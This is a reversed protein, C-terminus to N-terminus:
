CPVEGSQDAHVKPRRRDVENAAWDVADALHEFNSSLWCGDAVPIGYSADVYAPVGPAEWIKAAYWIGRGRMLPLPRVTARPWVADAPAELAMYPTEVNVLHPVPGRTSPHEASSRLRAAVDPTVWDAIPVPPYEYSNLNQLTQDRPIVSGVPLEPLTPLMREDISLLM